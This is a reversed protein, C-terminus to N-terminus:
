KWRGIAHVHATLESREPQADTWVFLRLISSISNNSPTVGGIWNGLINAEITPLDTFLSSPFPVSHNSWYVAGENQISMDSLVFSRWCEAIGSNWKRYTWIDKTGQEVIYDKMSGTKEIIKTLLTILKRELTIDVGVRYFRIANPESILYFKDAALNKYPNGFKISSVVSFM